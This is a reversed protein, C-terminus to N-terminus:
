HRAMETELSRRMPPIAPMIFRVHASMTEIESVHARQLSIKISMELELLPCFCPCNECHKQYTFHLLAVRVHVRCRGLKKPSKPAGCMYRHQRPKTEAEWVHERKMRTESFAATDFMRHDDKTKTIPTSLPSASSECVYTSTKSPKPRRCVYSHQHRNKRKASM